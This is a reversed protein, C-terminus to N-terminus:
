AERITRGVMGILAFATAAAWIMSMLDHIVPQYQCVDLVVGKLGTVFPTCGSPLRFSFSWSPAPISQVADIASRSKDVASDLAGKSPQVQPEASEPTGTEDILCKPKGPLGCTIIEVKDPVPTKTRQLPEDKNPSPDNKTKPEPTVDVRWPDDPTGVPKVRVGPQTWTDPKPTGDPNLGPSPDKIPDGTPVWFPREYPRPATSPQSSPEGYPITSPDPNISPQEFPWSVDPLEQPVGVPVPVPDMIRHFEPDGIPLSKPVTPEAPRSRLSGQSNVITGYLEECLSASVNYVGKFGHGLRAAWIGCAADKTSAFPAVGDVAYELCPAVTCAGPDTKVWVGNEVKLGQQQYYLYAASGVTLAAFVAPNGFAFTAGITAANAALRMSAPVVVSQGGIELAGNTLVTTGKYTNQNSAPGTKFVGPSGISNSPSWGTPPKIQAYGAYASCSFLFAAFLVVTNLIKKVNSM